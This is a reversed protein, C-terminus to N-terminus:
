TTSTKTCSPTTPTLEQKSNTRRWSRSTGILKFYAERFRNHQFVQIPLPTRNSNFDSANDRGMAHLDARDHDSFSHQYVAIGMTEANEGTQRQGAAQQIMENPVEFHSFEHRIALSLTDRPRTENTALQSLRRHNGTNTYNQPVVPNLYHDTRSGSASGGLTNKGNSYQAQGSAGASAFSGGNLVIQGNWGNQVDQMTNVEIVGGMKRGYEAPIGATYISLSQM